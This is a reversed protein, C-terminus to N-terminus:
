STTTETFSFGMVISFSTSRSSKRAHILDGAIPSGSYELWGLTWRRTPLISAFKLAFNERRAGLGITTLEICVRRASLGYGEFQELKSDSSM